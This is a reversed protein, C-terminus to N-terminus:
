DQACHINFSFTGIAQAADFLRALAAMYHANPGGFQATAIDRKLPKSTPHSTMPLTPLALAEAATGGSSEKKLGSREYATGLGTSSTKSRLRRWSFAGKGSVSNNRPVAQGGAGGEIVGDADRFMTGVSQVGVDNGLRRTLFAQAQELIGELSQMEELVADADESDARSLKQLAATLLDCQSIKEEVNKIRVGKVRWVDRPVFLKNSIYGGRPHALTQYLARMLWFPRLMVDTPCPELPLPADESLENIDGPSGPSTIDSDFLYFGGAASGANIREKFAATVPTPISPMAPLRTSSANIIGFQSNSLPTGPSVDSYEDINSVSLNRTKMTRLSNSSFNKRLAPPRFIHPEGTGDQFVAPVPPTSPLGDVAVPNPSPGRMTAASASRSGGASLAQRQQAIFGAPKPQTVSFDATSVTPGATAPEAVKPADIKQTEIKLQKVNAGSLRRDRVSDRGSSSLPRPPPLKPLSQTPPPAVPGQGKLLTPLASGPSEAVTSLVTNATPPNSVTSSHWTRSTFESSDSERPVRTKADQLGFTFDQIGYGQTMEELIREEEDSDDGDYFGGSPITQEEDQLARLRREKDDELRQMERVRERAQQVKRLTQAVKDDDDVVVHDFKEDEASDTQDYGDDYAAEIADDLAADFEAETDGSPARIHKRRIGM